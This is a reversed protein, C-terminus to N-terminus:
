ISYGRWKQRPVRRLAEVRRVFCVAEKDTVLSVWFALVSFEHRRCIAFVAGFVSVLRNSDTLHQNPVRRWREAGGVRVTQLVPRLLAHRLAPSVGLVGFPAQSSSRKNRASPPSHKSTCECETRCLQAHRHENGNKDTSNLTAASLRSLDYVLRRTGCLM